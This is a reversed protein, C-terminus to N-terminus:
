KKLLTLQKDVSLPQWLDVVNVKRDIKERDVRALVLDVWMQTRVM